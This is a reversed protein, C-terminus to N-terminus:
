KESAASYMYYLERARDDLEDHPDNTVMQCLTVTIDEFFDEELISEAIVRLIDDKDTSFMMGSHLKPGSHFMIVTDFNAGSGAFFPSVLKYRREIPSHPEEFKYNMTTYSKSHLAQPASPERM